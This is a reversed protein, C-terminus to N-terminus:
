KKLKSIPFKSTIGTPFGNEKLLASYEHGWFRADESLKEPTVWQTGAVGCYGTELIECLGVM